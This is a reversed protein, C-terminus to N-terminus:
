REKPKFHQVFEPAHQNRTILTVMFLRFEWENMEHIDEMRFTRDAGDNWAIHIESPLGLPATVPTVTLETVFYALASGHIRAKAKRAEDETDYEFGLDREGTDMDTGSDVPQKGLLSIVRNDFSDKALTINLRYM